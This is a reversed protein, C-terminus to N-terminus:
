EPTDITPPAPAPVAASPAPSALTTLEAALDLSAALSGAEPDALKFALELRLGGDSNAGTFRAEKFADMAELLAPSADLSQVANRVSAVDLWGALGGAQLMEKRVGAVPNTVKGLQATVQQEFTTLFLQDDKLILVLNQASLAQAVGTSELQELLRSGLNSSALNVALILAPRLDGETGQRLEPVVALADGAPLDLLQKWTLGTAAHLIEDIREPTLDFQAGIQAPLGALRERIATMDLSLGGALVANASVLGTLSEPLGNSKLIAPGPEQQHFSFVAEGEDFFVGASLTPASTLGSILAHLSADTQTLVTRTRLADWWLAADTWETLHRKFDLHAGPLGGDSELAALLPKALSEGPRPNERLVLVLADDSFAFALPLRNTNLIRWGNEVKLSDMMQRGFGGLRLEIVEAMAGEVTNADAVAAVVGLLPSFGPAEVGEPPHHQLFLHLPQKFDIGTSEPDRLLGSLFPSMEAIAEKHGALLPIDLPQEHGAKRLLDEAHLTLVALANTPIHRSHGPVSRPLREAKATQVRNTAPKPSANTTNDTQTAAKPPAPVPMHTEDRVLWWGAVLGGLIVAAGIYAPLLSPGAPAAEPEPQPKPSPLCAAVTSWDAQDARKCFDTPLLNGSALGAQLQDATFPGYNVGERHVWFDVRASFCGWM